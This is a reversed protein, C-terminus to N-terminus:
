KQKGNEDKDLDRASDILLNGQEHKRPDKGSDLQTCAEAWAWGIAENRIELIFDEMKSMFESTPYIGCDDPNDLMDSMLKCVKTRIRQDKIVTFDNM